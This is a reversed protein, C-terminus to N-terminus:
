QCARPPDSCDKVYCKSGPGKMASGSRKWPLTIWNLVKLQMGSHAMCCGQCARLQQQLYALAITHHTASGLSM